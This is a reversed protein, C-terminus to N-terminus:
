IKLGNQNTLGVGIPFGVSGKLFPAFPCRSHHYDRCSLEKGAEWRVLTIAPIKLIIGADYLLNLGMFWRYVRKLIGEIRMLITMTIVRAIPPDIM